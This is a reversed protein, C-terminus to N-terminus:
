QFVFRLTSCIYLTTDTDDVTSTFYFAKCCVLSLMPYVSLTVGATVWHLVSLITFLLSLSVATLILLLKGPWIYRSYHFILLWLDMFALTLFKYWTTTNTNTVTPCHIDLWFGSDRSCFICLIVPPRSEPRSSNPVTDLWFKPDCFCISKDRWCTSVTLFIM